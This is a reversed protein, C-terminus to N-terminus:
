VSDVPGIDADSGVGFFFWPNLHVDIERAFIYTREMQQIGNYTLTPALLPTQQHEYNDRLILSSNKSATNTGKPPKASTVM